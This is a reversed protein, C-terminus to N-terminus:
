GGHIHYGTEYAGVKVGKETVSDFYVKPEEFYIERDALSKYYDGAEYEKARARQLINGGSNKGTTGGNCSERLMTYEGAAFSLQNPGSIRHCVDDLSISWSLLQHENDATFGFDRMGYKREPLDRLQIEKPEEEEPKEEEAKETETVTTTTEATVPPETTTVSAETEGGTEQAPTSCASLMVACSLLLASLRVSNKM